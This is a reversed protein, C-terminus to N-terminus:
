NSTRTEPDTPYGCLGEWWMVHSPIPPCPKLQIVAGPRGHKRHYVKWTDNIRCILSDNRIVGISQMVDAIVKWANDLDPTVTCDIPGDADSKRYLRKPRPLYFWLTLELPEDLPEPTRHPLLAVSIATKWDDVVSPTYVAAHGGRAYAKVRPQGKPIGDVRVILPKM